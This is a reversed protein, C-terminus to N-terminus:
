DLLSITNKFLIITISAYRPMGIPNVLGLNSANKGKNEHFIFSWIFHEKPQLASISSVVAGIVSQLLKLGAFFFFRKVSISTTTTYLTSSTPLNFKALAYRFINKYFILWELSIDLSDPKKLLLFGLYFIPKEVYINRQIGAIGIASVKKHLLVENILEILSNGFVVKEMK